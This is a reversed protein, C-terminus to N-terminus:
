LKDLIKEKENEDFDNGYFRVFLEKRIEQESFNKPFSSLVINRATKFMSLAILIKEEGSKNLYILELKNEIEPVTDNM